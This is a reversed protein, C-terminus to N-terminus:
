SGTLAFDLARLSLTLAVCVCVCLAATWALAIAPRLLNRQATRESMAALILPHDASGRVRMRRRAGRYDNAPLARTDISAEGSILVGAGPALVTETVTVETIDGDKAHEAIQKAVEPRLEAFRSPKFVRTREEGVILVHDVDIACTETGDVADIAAAVTEDVLTPGQYNYAGSRYSYSICTHRALVPADDIGRLPEGIARLTAVVEAPGERLDAIHLTPMSHVRRALALSRGAAVLCVVASGLLVAAILVDVVGIM